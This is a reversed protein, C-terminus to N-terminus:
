EEAVLDAYVPHREIYARIYPCQAVVSLARARADDLASAALASGVGKGEFEPLVETHVLVIREGRRQYQVFGAVTGDSTRAEYRHRDPNDIVSLEMATDERLDPGGRGRPMIRREPRPRDRPRDEPRPRDESTPRDRLAALEAPTDLDDSSGLGDCAILGVEGPHARLWARAGVDGRAWSAVEPWITRTLLVPHGPIGQYTARLAPSLVRGDAPTAASVLRQVAASTLGPEDVLTVVVAQADLGALEALGARLSEGIGMAWRAARVLRVPASNPGSGDQRETPAIAAAVQDAAAGVVVLIPRCGGSALTQMGREVLTQGGLRILAKPEGMRRGAGAALLLGAM